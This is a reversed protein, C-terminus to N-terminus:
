SWHLFMAPTPLDISLFFSRLLYIVVNVGGRGFFLVWAKEIKMLCPLQLIVTVYLLALFNCWMGKGSMPVAINYSIFWSSVIKLWASFGITGFSCGGRLNGWTIPGLTAGFHVLWIFWFHLLYLECCWFSLTIVLLVPCWFYSLFLLYVTFLIAQCCCM